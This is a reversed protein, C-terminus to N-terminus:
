SYITDSRDVSGTRTEVIQAFRDLLATSIFLNLQVTTVSLYLTDALAFPEAQFATLYYGTTTAYRLGGSVLSFL